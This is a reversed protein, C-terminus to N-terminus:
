DVLLNIINLIMAEFHLIFRTSNQIRYNYTSITHQVSALSSLITCTDSQKNECVIIYMYKYIQESIDNADINTIFLKGLSSRILKLNTMSIQRNDICAKIIQCLRKIEEHWEIKYDIDLRKMDMNWLLTKIDHNSSNVIKKYENDGIEIKEREIISKGINELEVISPAKFIHIDCRRAIPQLLTNINNGILIFRCYKSKEELTRRLSAQTQFSLNDFGNIVVTKYAVKTNVLYLDHRVVFNQIIEQIMYKDIASGVPNFYLTYPSM